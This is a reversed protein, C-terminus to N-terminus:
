APVEEADFAAIVRVEEAMEDALARHLTRAEALTWDFGAIRDTIEFLPASRTDRTAAYQAVAEDGGAIVARALREADILADTIGHATIPDKFYGADGVLAWGPGASERFYGPEGPFGRLTGALRADRMRGSLDPAVEDLVRQYGDTVSEKFLDVFRAAPAAAFLCTEDGNTPIAGASLGVGYYWRYGDVPLGQWYGFVVAGAHRSARVIRADVLRAVTSRLGDAGIVIPALVTHERGRDDVCVVGRVRRGDRELAALRLGYEVQAGAAIAADALARDLVTRRPAYLGDVGDRPKIPVPVADGGYVFTARRIVPTGAAQVAPLVGWRHLQVVAGRMLAHTSLTDAGHRGRDAVLVRLGARALLLATAAGACRAGVIIADYEPRLTAPARLTM